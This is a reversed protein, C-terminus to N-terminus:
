SHVIQKATEMFAEIVSWQYSRDQFGFRIRYRASEGLHLTLLSDLQEETLAAQALIVPCFCAGVGRICLALQTEANSSSAVIHPHSIGERKLLNRAIQGDLDDM